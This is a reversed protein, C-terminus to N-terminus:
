SKDLVERIARNVIRDMDLDRGAHKLSKKRRGPVEKAIVPQDMKATKQDLWEAIEKERFRLCRRGLKIHPILNKSTWSYITAQSVGLIRAIEDMTM